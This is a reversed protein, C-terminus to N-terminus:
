FGLNLRLGLGLPHLWLHLWWDEDDRQLPLDGHIAILDRHGALDGALGHGVDGPVEVVGVDVLAFVKDYGKILVGADGAHEDDFGERLVAAHIFADSDVGRALRDARGLEVNLWGLWDLLSYRHGLLLNHLALHHDLFWHFRGLEDLWELWLNGLDGLVPDERGDDYAFGNRLDLPVTVLNLHLGALLEDHRIVGLRPLAAQGDSAHDLLVHSDEGALGDVRSAGRCGCGVEDYM